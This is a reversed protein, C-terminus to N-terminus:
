RAVLRFLATGTAPVTVVHLHDDGAISDGVPKWDPTATFTGATELQVTQGTAAAFTIDVGGASPAIGSITLGAQFWLYFKESPAHIAGGGPGNASTDVFQLGVKYLGPKTATYVRGHIHGYPDAGSEGHNESIPFRHTGNSEGVPVSFTIETADEDNGPTEWFGVAGGAPGSVSQLVAEIRSGLAAHQPDPGGFAPTAALAAFTMEGHYYGAYPASTGLVLPFVYGSEAGFDDASAFLLPTGPDTSVAGVAIHEHANAPFAVSALLSLPIAFRLTAKM